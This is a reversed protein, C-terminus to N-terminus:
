QCIGELKSEAITSKLVWTSICKLIISEPIKKYKKVIELLEKDYGKRKNGIHTALQHILKAAMFRERTTPENPMNDHRRYPPGGGTRRPDDKGSALADSKSSDVAAASAIVM